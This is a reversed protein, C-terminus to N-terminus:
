LRQPKIYFLLIICGYGLYSLLKATTTQHLFSSNYLLTDFCKMSKTTTTQHLFSSNYLVSQTVFDFNKTTTQHLFSSNYLGKATFCTRRSLQPKIYFLLIICCRVDPRCHQHTTTQHLFSSNYLRTNYKSISMTTTTQHLFSSNYLLYRAFPIM